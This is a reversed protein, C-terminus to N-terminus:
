FGLILWVTTYFDGLRTALAKNQTMQGILPETVARATMKKKPKV